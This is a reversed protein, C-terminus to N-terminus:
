VSCRLYLRPGSRENTYRMCCRMQLLTYTGACLTEHVNHQIAAAIPSAQSSTSQWVKRLMM